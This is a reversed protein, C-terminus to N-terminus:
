ILLVEIVILNKHDYLLYLKCRIMISQINIKIATTLILRIFIPPDIFPFSYISVNIHQRHRDYRYSKGPTLGKVVHSTGTVVGAVPEWISSGEECKEM